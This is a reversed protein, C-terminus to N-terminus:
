EIRWTKSSRRAISPTRLQPSWASGSKLWLRPSLPRRRPTAFRTPRKPPFPGPAPRALSSRGSRRAASDNLAAAAVPRGGRDFARRCGPRGLQDVTTVDIDVSDGPAVAPKAVSIEVKLDREVQVDLRAQDLENKAMRTATLTFNPFQAGDVVWAVPIIGRM